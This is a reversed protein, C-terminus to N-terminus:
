NETIIEYSRSYRIRFFKHNEFGDNISNREFEFNNQLLQPNHIEPHMTFQKGHMTIGSLFYFAIDYGMWAFSTEAPMTLFRKRYELNFQRVHPASYDVKYPSFMMQNLEFLIRPELNDLYVLSPYAIVRIDFRKLLGHLITIIESVAPPDETAIVVVNPIKESLTHSIRNISDNGFASRPYFIMERFRIEEYPMKSTLGSFVMERFRRVDPDRRASDTHIFVLNSRNNQVIERTIVQQAAELSSNALFLNPNGRLVRNNMLPVPSVVPIDLDRAYRSVIQLNNSYVPGIILDMDKLRGSRILRTVTMTDNAVDMAHLNINLGLSRLTDVALLIGNYMEIFDLSQPFIWEEPVRRKVKAGQSDGDTRNSNRTLYFPLLVAVDMTGHLNRVTTVGEPREPKVVPPEEVISEVTDEAPLDAQMDAAPDAPVRVYDGVRPFRVNRNERRIIRLPVNYRDAISSLTEGSEVKHYIFKNDQESFREKQTMFDKRPLAIESGVPLKNIEIGPNSQVIETESIGYLRSLSYITEGPKLSHYTYRSEDKQRAPTLSAPAKVPIRILQGEQIGYLATPNETTIEQVTVGYAKSISFTTQGKQVKHIYYQNGSIIIKEKSIEVPVQARIEFFSLALLVLLIKYGIGGKMKM